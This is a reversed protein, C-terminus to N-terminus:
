QRAEFSSKQANKFVGANKINNAKYNDTTEGTASRVVNLNFNIYELATELLAHNNDNEIKLEDMVLKIKNAVNRIKAKDDETNVLDVIKYITLDKESKGLVMAIDSVSEMREKELKQAKNTIVVEASTIQKLLEVDNNIIVKQKEKALLLLEEYLVTQKELVDVLTEILTSM